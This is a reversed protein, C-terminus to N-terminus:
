KIREVVSASGLSRGNYFYWDSIEEPLLKRAFVFRDDIRTYLEYTRYNKIYVLSDKCESLSNIQIAKRKGRRIQEALPLPLSM